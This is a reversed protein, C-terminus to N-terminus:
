FATDTDAQFEHILELLSDSRAAFIETSDGLSSSRALSILAGDLEGRRFMGRGSFYLAWGLERRIEPCDRYEAARDLAWIARVTDGEAEALAAFARWYSYGERRDLRLRHINLRAAEVQGDEALKEALVCRYFDDEPRLEVARRVLKLISDPALESQLLLATWICADAATSDDPSDVAETLYDISPTEYLGLREEADALYYRCVGGGRIYDSYELLRNYMELDRLARLYEGLFWQNSPEMRWAELAPQMAEEPMELRNAVWALRYLLWPDGSRAATEQLLLPYAEPLRGARALSDGPTM